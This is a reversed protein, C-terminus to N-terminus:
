ISSHHCISCGPISCPATCKKTAPDYGIYTVNPKSPVPAWRASDKKSIAYETTVEDKQRAARHARFMDNTLLGSRPVQGAVQQQEAEGAGGNPTPRASGDAGSAAMETDLLPM